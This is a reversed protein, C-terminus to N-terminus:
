IRSRLLKPPGNMWYARCVAYFLGSYTIQFSRYRYLTLLCKSMMIRRQGKVCVNVLMVCVNKFASCHQLGTPQIHSSYLPNGGQFLCKLVPIHAFVHDM